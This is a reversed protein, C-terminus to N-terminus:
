RMQQHLVTRNDGPKTYIDVFILTNRIETSLDGRQKPDRKM